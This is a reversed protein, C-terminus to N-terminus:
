PYLRSGAVLKARQSVEGNDKSVPVRLRHHSGASPTPLRSARRGRAFSGWFPSPIGMRWMSGNESLDDGGLWGPRQPYRRPM